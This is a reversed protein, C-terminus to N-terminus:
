ADLLRRGLAVLVQMDHPDRQRSTAREVLEFLKRRAELYRSVANEDDGRMQRAAQHLDRLLSDAATVNSGRAGNKRRSLRRWEDATPVRQGQGLVDGRQQGFRPGGHRAMFRRARGNLDDLAARLRLAWSAVQSPVAFAGIQPPDAYVAGGARELARLVVGSCNHHRSVAKYRGDTTVFRDFWQVAGQPVLGFYIGPSGLGPICIKDDPRQEFDFVHHEVTGGESSQLTQQGVHRIHQGRRPDFRGEVLQRRTLEGMEDYKDDRYSESRRGQQSPAFVESFDNGAGESPWWSIYHSAGPWRATLAAHGMRGRGGKTERWVRAVLEQEFQRHSEKNADALQQRELEARLRENLEPDVGYVRQGEQDFYQPM